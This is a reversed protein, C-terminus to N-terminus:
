LINQTLINEGLTDSNCIVYGMAALVEALPDLTRVLVIDWGTGLGAPGVWFSM